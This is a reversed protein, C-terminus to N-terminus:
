EQAEPIGVEAGRAVEAGMLPPRSSSLQSVYIM